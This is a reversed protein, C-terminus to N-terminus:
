GSETYRSDWIKSGEVQALLKKRIMRSEYELLERPGVRNLLAHGESAKASERAYAGGVGDEIWFETSFWRDNVTGELSVDAKPWNRSRSWRRKFGREEMEGRYGGFGKMLYKALYVAAGAPSFVDECFVIYSDGTIDYWVKAIEHQLCDVKCTTKIWWYGERDSCRAVRKTIGGM